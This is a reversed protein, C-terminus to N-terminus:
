APAPSNQRVQEGAWALWQASPVGYPRFKELRGEDENYFLARHPGLKSAAPTDVLNASDEASMQFVVRMAFERLSRRDLNRNLNTLTDCWVITHVGVDPGERLITAFQQAPNPATPDESSSSSGMTDDQRLDRARQLGYIILYLGGGWGEGQLSRGGGWGEGQSPSPTDGDLRRNVEAALDSLIGPLERRRGYRTTHPLSRLLTPLLDAYTADTASFDLVCFQAAKPTHQAALSVLAVATMGLAAEDNQGVILLNSGSQRRFAVAIPERIAIPDGLYALARRSRV